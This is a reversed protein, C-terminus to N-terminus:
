KSLLLPTLIVAKLAEGRGAESRDGPYDKLRTFVVDDDLTVTTELRDLMTKDTLMRTIRLLRRM